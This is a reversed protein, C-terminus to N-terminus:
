SASDVATAICFTIAIERLEAHMSVHMFNCMKVSIRVYMSTILIGHLVLSSNTPM